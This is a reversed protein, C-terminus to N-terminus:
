RNATPVETPLDCLQSWSKEAACVAAIRVANVCALIVFHGNITVMKVMCVCLM